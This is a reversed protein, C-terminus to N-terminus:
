KKPKIQKYVSKIALLMEQFNKPFQPYANSWPSQRLYYWYIRKEPRICWSQWPKLTGTFHIIISQNTVRTEGTTLDVLSNWIGDINLFKGDVIKNLADQDWLRIMDPNEQLFKFCKNGINETRWAELNILMVGSNFYFDGTLQLRKKTGPGMKGGAYAALIDDSIDMNYLNELSSNVVLDSDLYLIKKLDQPLLEPALLRYYAATSIHASVKVNSLDKDDPSYIFFKAQTKSKLKDIKKLFDKSNDKTVLHITKIKNTNNLILSTIAVGFHQEYNKDFCFLVDM